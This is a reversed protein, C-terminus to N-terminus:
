ARSLSKSPSNTANYSQIPYEFTFTPHEKNYFTHQIRYLTIAQHKIFPLLLTQIHPTKTYKNKNHLQLFNM